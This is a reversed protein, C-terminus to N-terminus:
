PMKNVVLDVLASSCDTKLQAFGDAAIFAKLNAPSSLFKLCATSLMACHHREAVALIAAVSSTNIDRCLAEECILKLKDLKYRDAVILMREAATASDLLPPSNTYIFHLLAKFVQADMDEIRLEATGTAKSALSLDAKFVPSVAELVWRHAPLTEGGVEIKVDALQGHFVFPPVAAATAHDDIRVGTVTVDCLVTLCDDKLHKEKDLDKHIMFDLRGWALNKGEFACEEVRKTFSPMGAQDLISLQGKATADGTWAHSAHELFLSIYGDQGVCGNPYCMIRWDHGGVSFTASRTAHGNATLKCVQTYKDIRLVHSGTARRPVVTSVSLQQRGAGRLAALLASMSM